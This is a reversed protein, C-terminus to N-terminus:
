CTNVIERIRQRVTERALVDSRIFYDVRTGDAMAKFDVVYLAGTSPNSGILAFSGPDSSVLEAVGSSEDIRLSNITRIKEDFGRTVCNAVKVLAGPRVITETIKSERVNQPTFSCGALASMLLLSLIRM